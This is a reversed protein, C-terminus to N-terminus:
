QVQDLNTFTLGTWKTSDSNSVSGDGLLYEQSDISVVMVRGDTMREVEDVTSGWSGYEILAYHTGFLANKIIQALSLFGTM